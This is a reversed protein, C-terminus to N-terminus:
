LWIGIALAGLTAAACYIAFLYFKNTKILVKVLKIALIGFILSSLFGIALASSPIDVRDGGIFDLLYFLNAGLIVPISMLFSFRVAFERSLGLKRAAFITTGSRSLGPFIAVAQALGVFFGRKVPTNDANTGDHKEKKGVNHVAILLAATVLLFAATVFINDLIHTFGLFELGVGVLTVPISGLIVMLLLKREPTKFNPKGRFLDYMSAFFEKILSLVDKFFMAVVAVLTGFHLFVTFALNEYYAGDGFLQNFIVLHGSSSVPIFETLGQLIGALLAQWWTM